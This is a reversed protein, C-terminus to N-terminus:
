HIESSQLDILTVIKATEHNFGTDEDTYGITSLIKRVENDYDPKYSSLVEGSIFVTNNKIM